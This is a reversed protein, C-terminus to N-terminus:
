SSRAQMQSKVHHLDKLPHSLKEYSYSHSARKTKIMLPIFFLIPM